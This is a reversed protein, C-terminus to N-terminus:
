EEDDLFGIYRLIADSLLAIAEDLDRARNIEGADNLADIAREAAGTVRSLIELPIPVEDPLPV